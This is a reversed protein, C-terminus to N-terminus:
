AGERITPKQSDINTFDPSESRANSTERNQGVGMEDRGVDERAMNKGSADCTKPSM